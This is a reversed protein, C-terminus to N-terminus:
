NGAVVHHSVVMQLLILRGRRTQRFLTVTYKCVYFLYMKKFLPLPPISSKRLPFQSLPYCKFHLYIFYGIFFTETMSFFKTAFPVRGGM